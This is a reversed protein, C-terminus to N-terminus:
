TPPADTADTAVESLRQAELLPELHVDKKYACNPNNCVIRRQVRQVGDLFQMAWGCPCYFYDGKLRVKM